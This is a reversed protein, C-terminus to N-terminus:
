VRKERDMKKFDDPTLGKVIEQIKLTAYIENGHKVPSDNQRQKLSEHLSKQGNRQIKIFNDQSAALVKRL